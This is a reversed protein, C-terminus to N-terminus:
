GNSNLAGITELYDAKVLVQRNATFIMCREPSLEAVGEIKDKAIAITREVFEQSEREGIVELMKFHMFNM